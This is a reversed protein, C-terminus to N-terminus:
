LDSKCGYQDAILNLKCSAAFPIRWTDGLDTWANHEFEVHSAKLIKCEKM